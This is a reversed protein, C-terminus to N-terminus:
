KFTMIGKNTKLGFILEGNSTFRYSQVDSLMKSFEGEQSGDCFMLTSMMKTFTIKNASISYEGGVSNCDTSASFNKKPDFAILFRDATKPKTTEGNAYTTNLWKWSHMYLTMKSPNTDGKFGQPVEIPKTTKTDADESSSTASNTNNTNTGFLFTRPSNLLLAIIILIIIISIGLIIKKM